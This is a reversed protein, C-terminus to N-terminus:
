ALLDSFFTDADFGSGNEKETDSDAGPQYGLILGPTLLAIDVVEGENKSDVGDDEEVGFGYTFARPTRAGSWPNSAVGYSLGGYLPLAGYSADEVQIQREDNDNDNENELDNDISEDLFGLFNMVNVDQGVGILPSDPSDGEELPELTLANTGNLM